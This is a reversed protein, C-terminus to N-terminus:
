DTLKKSLTRLTESFKDVCEPSSVSLQEDSEFKEGSIGSVFSEVCEKIDEHYGGELVAFLPKGFSVLYQGAEYYGRKSYNLALIRDKSYGDVGASVGIHDPNFREIHERLYELAKLFLDDGSGGNLPINIVKKFSPGKGIDMVSGTYPYVGSQHISCFLVRNDKQFISQTGNGHHGDIDIICVRKGLELLYSTAIAINNFFCFGEAKERSAHHGPPRTVAFANNQAAMIALSVSTIMATHSGPRLPIEAVKCKSNCAGRIKQAYRPSHTREIRAKVVPFLPKIQEATITEPFKVVRYPGEGDSSVNHNETAKNHLIKM